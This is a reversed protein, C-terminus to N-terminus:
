MDRDICSTSMFFNFKMYPFMILCSSHSLNWFSIEWVVSRIAERTILNSESKRKCPIHVPPRVLHKRYVGKGGCFSPQKPYLYVFFLTTCHVTCLESVQQVKNMEVYGHKTLNEVLRPILRTKTHNCNSLMIILRKDQCFLFCLISLEM